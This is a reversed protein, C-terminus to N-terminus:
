WPDIVLAGSSSFHRTNRTMIHLGNHLATAALLGDVAPISVGSNQARATLEGWIMAIDPNVPLIRATFEKQLGSLWSTLAQKKKGDQLLSIGKSIEGLSLVSLFLADDPLESLARKV